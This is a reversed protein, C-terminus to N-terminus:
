VLRVKVDTLNYRFTLSTGAKMAEVLTDFFDM